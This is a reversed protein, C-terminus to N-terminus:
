EGMIINVAEHSGYMSAKRGNGNSLIAAM